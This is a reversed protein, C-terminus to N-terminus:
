ILVFLAELRGVLPGENVPNGDALGDTKGVLLGKAVGLELGTNCRDREGEVSGLLIGVSNLEADGELLETGDKDLLVVM